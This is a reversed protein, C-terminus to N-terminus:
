GQVVTVDSPSMLFYSEPDGEVIGTGSIPAVGVGNISVAFVLRTLLAPQLLDSIAAQFFTDMEFVNIPAGVPIANVYDSVAQSGLQAVATPDVFNTSTTNWTAVISVTQQPPLVIPVDYTDPYDNISVVINRNNPTVVGGSTYTGFGTTNVGFSFTKETIVTVTYPGGNAATMGLVGAIHVNSQGTTLGHNLDTTVVGPNAKTIATIGITSGTLDNLDFLAEYIANAVQYPDGGGVIVEWQGSVQRTSVLRPQVGPVETLLTKLFSNMGQSAARGAQLVRARYGGESEAAAGPVGTQPNTCSLTIGTPVSTVLTTVTNAPVAWTGVVTALCFLPLSTGGSGIIGGDQVVYQHTGDGVTFGRKLPFGLTGSFVVFVSTTTVDGQVPGYIQGLQNLLFANAGRPGISNVLEVRGSDMEVLAAVDTSSIDEILSAPLTATYGPDEAAVAALLLARLTDPDTPVPGDKTMLLPVDTM